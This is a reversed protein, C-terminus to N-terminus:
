FKASIGFLYGTTIFDLTGEPDWGEPFKDLSFLDTVNAYVRVNRLKIKGVIKSPVNYGLTINKLRLYRGNFLWFDSDSLNNTIGITSARPYRAKLNQEETNYHSWYNGVIMQPVEKWEELSHRAMTPTIYSYQRGVGQIVLSFDFNRYDLRINGGYLYRGMSGGLLTRDYEPSIKGDPVGEPGSINMYKVDGPKVATSLKPSNDVEEQTQYLGESKYGYWENFESGQKKVQSALFETGGLDGMISRADSINFSVAYDLQGIKDNWGLDLEWGRTFMKGTNQSPNDLGIYDPIELALLMDRTTKKYYDATLKLRNSFFGADIGIDYSETTEWSIDRIAYRTVAATQASVVNNGQYFLANGFSITSQYPYNSGIRENGLSGYSARLKLFPLVNSDKLFREESIVWGASVSPFLAWRYDKYFRSSGDYRGNVQVYYRDDYNYMVRGFFSRYANEYANGANYQYNSNGLDLYPFETLNYQDRSAGLGENRFYFNEFGVMANVSHKGASKTYNGLFQTTLTVTENRSENLSTREAGTVFGINVNPDAFNTYPLQKRFTKGKSNYLEPSFIASFKLGNVPELDLSIKGGTTQASSNNFGGYQSLAYYNEGTKGNAIMGNQWEAAYVPAAIPRTGFEVPPRESMSYIGYLNVAVSLYQNISIDNNARLTIRDFTRNAYLGNTQDYALSLKTSFNQTGGSLGLTHSQRLANRDYILGRWDTAPYRDPDELHLAAYNDILEKPYVPYESGTNNNDNWKLENLTRMYTQADAYGPMRTPKSFGYNFDYQLDLVGAKGRKTTVLIVGSAARSGYISASAADKLVSISEVDNPNVWDLTGPIGDIIVLPNSDGITTVGRIRITASADPASSTRTVTVGPMAGQLAQSIRVAQREKINTSSLTSIAGTLDKKQATGYGIVVVEDLGSTEEEMVVSLVSRGALAIEQMKMGVFSFVFVSDAAGAPIAFKGEADTVTGKNRGKVVVTVGPIPEGSVYTVEGSVDKVQATLEGRSLCLVMIMLLLVRTTPSFGQSFKLRVILKMLNLKLTIM